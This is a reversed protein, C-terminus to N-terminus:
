CPPEGCRVRAFGRSLRGCGLFKRFERAVFGPVGAGDTRDAVTALFTHLHGRVVDYLVGTTPTRPTYAAAVGAGWRPGHRRRCM